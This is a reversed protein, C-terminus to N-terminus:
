DVVLRYCFDRELRAAAVKAMLLGDEFQKISRWARINDPGVKAAGINCKHFAKFTSREVVVHVTRLALSAGWM